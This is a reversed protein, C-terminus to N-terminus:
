PNATKSNVWKKNIHGDDGSNLETNEFGLM